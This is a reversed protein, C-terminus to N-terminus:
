AHAVERLAISQIEMAFWPTSPVLITLRLASATAIGHADLWNRADFSRTAFADSAAVDPLDVHGTGGAHDYHLHTVIVTDIDEPAIDVAKLAEVPHRQVPRGRRAAETADYGTDVLITRNANRVVWVFYDMAHPSAHDDDFLFSDLRQRENREAYKLAFVQWTEEM